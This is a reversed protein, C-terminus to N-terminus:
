FSAFPVAVSWSMITPCFRGSRFRAGLWCCDGNDVDSGMDDSVKM